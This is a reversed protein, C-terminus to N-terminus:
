TDKREITERLKRVFAEAEIMVREVEGRWSERPDFHFRTTINLASDQIKTRLVTRVVFRFVGDHPDWRWDDVTGIETARLVASGVVKELGDNMQAFDSSFKPWHKKPVRKVFGLSVEWLARRKRATVM